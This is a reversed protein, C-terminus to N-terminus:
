PSQQQMDKLTTDDLNTREELTLKNFQGAAASKATKDAFANGLSVKDTGSTHAASKCVAIKRPLQM